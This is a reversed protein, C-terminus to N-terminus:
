NRLEESFAAHFRHVGANKATEQKAMVQGHERLLDAIDQIEDASFGMGTLFDFVCSAVRINETCGM